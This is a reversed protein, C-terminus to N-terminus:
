RLLLALLKQENQPIKADIMAQLEADTLGAAGRLNAILSLIEALASIASPLLKAVQDAFPM